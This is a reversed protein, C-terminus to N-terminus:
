LALLREIHAARRRITGMSVGFLEELESNLV